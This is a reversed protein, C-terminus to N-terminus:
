AIGRPAIWRIERSAIKKDCSHERSVLVADGLVLDIPGIVSALIQTAEVNIINTQMKGHENVYLRSGDALMCALEIYGGVFKQLEELTFAKNDAPTVERPKGRAPIFISM